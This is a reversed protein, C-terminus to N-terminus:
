KAVSEKVKGAFETASDRLEKFAATSETNFSTAQAQMDKMFGMQAEVVEGISTSARLKKGSEVSSAIAETAFRVNREVNEEFMRTSMEAGAKFQDKLVSFMM